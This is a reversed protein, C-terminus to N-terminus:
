PGFTDRVKRCLDRRQQVLEMRAAQGVDDEDHVELAGEWPNGQACEFFASRPAPDAAHAHIVVVLLAFFTQKLM